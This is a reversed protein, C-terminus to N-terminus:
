AMGSIAAASFQPMKQPLTSPVPFSFKGVVSHGPSPPRPQRWPGRRLGAPQVENGSDEEFM